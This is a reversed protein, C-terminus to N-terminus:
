ANFGASPTISEISSSLLVRIGQSTELELSGEYNTARRYRLLFGTLSAGTILVIQLPQGASLPQCHQNFEINDM